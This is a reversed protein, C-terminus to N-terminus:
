TNESSRDWLQELDALADKVAQLEARLREPSNVDDPRGFDSVRNLLSQLRDRIEDFHARIESRSAMKGERVGAWKRRMPAGTSLAVERGASAM